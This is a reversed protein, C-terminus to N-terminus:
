VLDDEDGLGVDDGDGVRAPSAWGAYPAAAPAPSAGGAARRLLVLRFFDAFAAADVDGTAAATTATALGGRAPPPSLGGAGRDGGRAVPSRAPSLQAVWRALSGLPGGVGRRGRPAADRKTGALLVPM